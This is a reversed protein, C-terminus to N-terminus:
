SNFKTQRSLYWRSVTKTPGSSGNGGVAKASFGCRTEVPQGWELQGLSRAPKEGVEISILVTRGEFWSVRRRILVAGDPRNCLKYPGRKVGRVDRGAAGYISLNSFHLAILGHLGAV